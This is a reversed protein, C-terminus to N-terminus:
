TPFLQASVTPSTSGSLDFRLDVGPELAFREVGNATFSIGTDIWTTGADPSMQLKITGSGFDSGWAVVTGAGGSWDVTSSQGDATFAKQIAASM